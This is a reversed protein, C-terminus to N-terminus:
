EPNMSRIPDFKWKRSWRKINKERRIAAIATANQEYYVLSKVRHEKTFGEVLGEGHEHVRRVLDITM